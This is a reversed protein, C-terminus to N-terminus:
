IAGRSDTLSGKVGVPTSCRQSVNFTERPVIHSIRQRRCANLVSGQLSHGNRRRGTLSGKVGVPTSCRFQGTLCTLYAFHSLDKSASLRQACGGTTATRAACTAHSIRQRRCANLVVAVGAPELSAPIHSIRQRRCANLVAVKDKVQRVDTTLSGKVGVPTSCREAVCDDAFLSHTLSGKVGVPTSCVSAAITM